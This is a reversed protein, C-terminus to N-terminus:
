LEISKTGKFFRFSSEMSYGRQNAVVKTNGVDYSLTEHTHGHIWYEIQPNDLILGSLDSAYAHDLANGCHQSNVSKYTPAMHTFVVTRTDRHWKLVDTIYQRSEIHRDYIFEPTINIPENKNFYNFDFEDRAGIYEYDNMGSQIANMVLPNRNNFDTWLTAGIFLVGDILKSNNEWLDIKELGLAKLHKNIEPATNKYVSRYYEHNGCIYFVESYKDIFEKFPGALYKKISRADKDTRNERISAATLIDGALILIDGGVEKSLDPFNRFELHLDSVYSIKIM